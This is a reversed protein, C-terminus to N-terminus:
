NPAAPGVPPPCSSHDQLEEGDALDGSAPDAHGALIVFGPQGDAGVSGVVVLTHSGMDARAGAVGDALLTFPNVSDLDDGNVAIASYPQGALPV